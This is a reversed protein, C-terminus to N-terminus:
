PQREALLTAVAFAPACGSVIPGLHESLSVVDGFFRGFFQVLENALFEGTGCTIATAKAAAMRFSLTRLAMKEKLYDMQREAILAALERTELSEILEPDGCLMRSLRAHANARTAPRGDATDYDTPDEPVRDLLLYADQVTAFLEAAWGSGLITTAPTRKVGTYALYSQRLRSVDTNAPCHPKGDRIPIMDTTTSGIDILLAPGCPVFRGCFTALAHWNASAVKMYNRCSDEPNQFTGATTWVWVLRNRVSKQVSDLIRNVGERKTRFCDCLEGTMTVALEEAEPFQSVLEGLVEPLRDPEKWLAFPVSVARKDTAAAKLNAGGIDLGLIVPPM